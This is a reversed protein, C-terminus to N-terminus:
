GEGGDKVKRASTILAAEALKLDVDRMPDHPADPDHLFVAINEAPITLYNVAAAYLEADSFADLTDFVTHAASVLRSAGDCGSPAPLTQVERKDSRGLIYDATVDYYDCAKVVFELKPERAGNEYHSLLAQSIGLDSAVYRQSRGTERRLASLVICFDKM